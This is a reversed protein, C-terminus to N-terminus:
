ITEVGDLHGHMREASIQCAHRASILQLLPNATTATAHAAQQENSLIPEALAAVNGNRNRLLQALLTKRDLQLKDATVGSAVNGFKHALDSDHGPIIRRM